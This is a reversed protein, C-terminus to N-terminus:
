SSCAGSLIDNRVLLETQVSRTLPPTAITRGEIRVVVSRSTHQPLCAIGGKDCAKSCFGELVTNRLFPTVEFATVQLTGVDTLSQWSGDGIKMEIAQSRLRYTLREATGYSFAIEEGVALDARPNPQIETRAASWVGSPSQDWAGARRLNRTVLDMANQLDRSLRMEIALQRSQRLHQTLAMLGAAVITLGLAMGLMLEILTFGRQKVPPKM